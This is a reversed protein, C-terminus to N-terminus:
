QHVESKCVLKRSPAQFAEADQQGPQTSVATVGYRKRVKKEVSCDVVIPFSSDHMPRSIRRCSEWKGLLAILGECIRPDAKPGVEQGALHWLFLEGVGVNGGLAAIDICHNLRPICAPSHNGRITSPIFIRGRLM